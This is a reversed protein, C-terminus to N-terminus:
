IHNQQGKLDPARWLFSREHSPTKARASLALLASQQSFRKPLFESPPSVGQGSVDLHDTPNAPDVQFTQRGFLDTDRASLLLTLKGADSGEVRLVDWGGRQRLAQLLNNAPTKLHYKMRMAEIKDRDGSNFAALWEAAAKGAPTDPLMNMAHLGTDNKTSLLPMPSVPPPLQASAPWVLLLIFVWYVAHFRM